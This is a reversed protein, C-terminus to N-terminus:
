NVESKKRIVPRKTVKDTGMLVDLSDIFAKAEPLELKTMKSVARVASVKEDQELYERIQRASAEDKVTKMLFADAQRMQVSKPRLTDQPPTVSAKRPKEAGAVPKTPEPQPSDIVAASAETLALENSADETGQANSDKHCGM